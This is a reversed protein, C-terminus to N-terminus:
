RGLWTSVASRRRIAWRATAKRLDKLAVENETAKLDEKQEEEGAM